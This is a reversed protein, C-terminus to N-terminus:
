EAAELSPNVVQVMGDEIVIGIKGSSDVREIWIQLDHEEAYSALANMADDDLLSGDRVRIVRLKPNMAGAVAVSVRLRDADSAQEFPIGNLLVADDTLQLGPVPLESNRVAKEAEAKRAEIQKTLDQSRQEATDREKILNARQRWLTVHRNIEEAQAIRKSIPEIDILEGVHCLNEQEVNIQTLADRAADIAEQEAAIRAKLDDINKLRGTIAENLHRARDALKDRVNLSDQVKTNHTMAANLEAIIDESSIPETPSGEPLQIADIRTTLERVTRNVDTRENYDKKNDEEAKDFDFDPVLARLAVVQDRPKMRAFALPDFTLDGILGALLEQPSSFKAGETNEVTLSITVDGDARVKFKKTVIYDGLDLRIFGSDAGERVPKSQIVKKSDLAWWIADLISTKGQGNRGTIQVLHGDPSIEVATLRKINEATLQVIKM